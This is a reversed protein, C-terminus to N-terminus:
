AGGVVVDGPKGLLLHVLDELELLGVERHPRGLDSCLQFPEAPPTQADSRDRPRELGVPILHLVAAGALLPAQHAELRRM